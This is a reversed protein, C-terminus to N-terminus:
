LKSDFCGNININWQRFEVLEYWCSQTAYLLRSSALRPTVRMLLLALTIVHFDRTHPNKLPVMCYSQALKARDRLSGDHKMWERIRLKQCGLKVTTNEFM